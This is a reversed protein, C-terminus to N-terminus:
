LLCCISVNNNTVDNILLSHMIQLGGDFNALVNNQTHEDILLLPIKEGATILVFLSNLGSILNIHIEVLRYMM